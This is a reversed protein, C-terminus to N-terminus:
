LKGPNEEDKNAAEPIAAAQSILDSLSNGM